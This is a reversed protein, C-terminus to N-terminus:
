SRPQDVPIRLTRITQALGAYQAVLMLLEIAERENLHERLFVWTLDDVDQFTHLSDVVALIARDREAFREFSGEMINAIEMSSLGARKGLRRHHDAEYDSETLAAVRLIALESERRPLHGFPMLTGSFLLWGWFVRRTRGLTTFIAPPNTHM